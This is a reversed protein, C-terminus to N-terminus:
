ELVQFCLRQDRSSIKTQDLNIYFLKRQNQYYIQNINGSIITVTKM